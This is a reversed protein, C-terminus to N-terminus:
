DVLCHLLLEEPQLPLESCYKIPTPLINTFGDEFDAVPQERYNGQASAEVVTTSSNSCSGSTALRHRDQLELVKIRKCPTASMDDAQRKGFNDCMEQKCPTASM